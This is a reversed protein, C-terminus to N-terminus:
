GQRKKGKVHDDDDKGGEDKDEDESEGDTDEETEDDTDAEGTSTDPRGKPEGDTKVKPEVKVQEVKDKAKDAKNKQAFLEGSCIFLCFSFLIILVKKM